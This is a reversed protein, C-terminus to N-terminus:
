QDAFLRKSQGIWDYRLELGRLCGTKPAGGLEARSRRMDSILELLTIIAKM